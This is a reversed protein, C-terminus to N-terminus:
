KKAGMEAKGVEKGNEVFLIRKYEGNSVSLVLPSAFKAGGGDKSTAKYRLALTGKDDLTVKDVQYTWTEGGRKITAIVLKDKFAQEPVLEPKKGQVRAVGFVSDFAKRGVIALFSQEGKLGSNNKEFYGSYVDFKLEKDKDADDAAANGALAIGVALALLGATRM